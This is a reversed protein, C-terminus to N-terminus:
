ISRKGDEWVAKVRPFRLSREGRGRDNSESESFYELTIQKGVIESPDRAYRLRQEATFGSGVSVPRGKHEIWINSCATHEGFVGGVALRMTNTDVSKVIYEAEQWQKFKRVATTRKGEYPKDARLVLGEWGEAAARGVMSEVEEPGAVAVQELRRVHREHDQGDLFDVIAHGLKIREGFTTGSVSAQTEFAQWSLVDLLFFAPHPITENQRRVLSVTSPFDEVLDDEHSAWLASAFTETEATSVIQGRTKEEETKPRLVCVEGDLVLRKVVGKDNQQLVVPDSALWRAVEGLGALREVQEHLRALSTFPNGTRSVSQVGVVSLNETPSYPVLFDIFLLCRVGDLKRSAFWKVGKRFLGDFPPEVTKGLACSFKKLSREKPPSPSASPAPGPASVASPGLNATEWPVSLLTKAGFGAVLNRDLLRGFVELLEPHDLIGKDSLWSVLFDRAAHGTRTRSSLQDFLDSITAPNEPNPPPSLPLSTSASQIYTHLTRSTIHLLLTPEYVHELLDRLDPYEAMISAKGRKSNVAGVRKQLELVRELQHVVDSSSSATRTSSQLPHTTAFTRFRPNLHHPRRGASCLAHAGATRASLRPPM